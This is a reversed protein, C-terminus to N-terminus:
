LVRDTPGGREGPLQERERAGLDDLRAGNVEVLDDGLDLLQQPPRDAFVDPERGPAGGLRQGDVDVGALQLLHQHVEGDGRPGGGRLPPVMRTTSSSALRRSPFSRMRPRPPYRTRTAWSPGSASSTAARAPLMPRTTVSMIIGCMDPASSASCNRALRGSRGTM